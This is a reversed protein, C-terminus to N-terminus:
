VIPSVPMRLPLLLSRRSFPALRSAKASPDKERCIESVRVSATTVHKRCQRLSAVNTTYRVQPPVHQQLRESCQKAAAHYRQLLSYKQGSHFTVHLTGSRVAANFLHHETRTGDM